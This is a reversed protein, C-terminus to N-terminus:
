NLAIRALMSGALALLLWGFIGQIRRKDTKISLHAGFRAGLFVIAALLLSTRWDWHGALLHGSFGAAATLGVMLSSSGIAIEIPVGLVLVMLPVLFMGGGIGLLGSAFGALGALPLGLLLNVRYSHSSHQRQWCLRTFTPLRACSEIRLNAIMLVAVLAVLAAFTLTLFVQSFRESILGGAFGGAVAAAELTLALPWDIVGARYYVPLAAVAGSMILFLSTTAAIHFDVGFIVQLPTYVAGGGQGLMAFLVATLFMLIWLLVGVPTMLM